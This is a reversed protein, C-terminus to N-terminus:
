PAGLTSLFFASIRKRYDDTWCKATQGHDLGALIVLEKHGPAANFLDRTEDPPTYRDAEGGIVLVPGRYRALADMPILHSPWDDFRFIAQYSLLPEFLVDIPHPFHDALRNRVARRIDSYVGQLIMSDAPLPGDPGLLAAAGGLSVGLVGLPAGQQKSKLWDFAARADRSEHLGFSLPAPDSKGHGRFDIALVGFGLGALLDAQEALVARSEYMGHLLVVGPSNPRRGPWYTAALTLGDTSRLAFDRAPPSSVFDPGKPPRMMMGEGLLWSALGLLSLVILAFLFFKRARM